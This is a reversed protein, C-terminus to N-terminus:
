IISRPKLPFEAECLPAPDMEYAGRSCFCKHVCLVNQIQAAWCCATFDTHFSLGMCIQLVPTRIQLKFPNRMEYSSM